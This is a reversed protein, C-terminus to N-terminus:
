ATARGAEREEREERQRRQEGEARLQELVQRAREYFGGRMLAAWAEYAARRNWDKPMPARM